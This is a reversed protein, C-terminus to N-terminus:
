RGDRGTVVVLWLAFVIGAFLGLTFYFFPDSM